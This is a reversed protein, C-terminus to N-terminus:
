RWEVGVLNGVLKWRGFRGTYWKMEVGVGVRMVMGVRVVVWVVGVM